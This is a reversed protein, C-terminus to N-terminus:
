GSLGECVHGQCAVHLGVVRGVFLRLCCLWQVRLVCWCSVVTTGGLQNAASSGDDVCCACWFMGPNIQQLLTNGLSVLFVTAAATSPMGTGTSTPDICQVHGTQCMLGGRGQGLEQQCTTHHAQARVLCLRIYQGWLAMCHQCERWLPLLFRPRVGSGASQSAKSGLNHACTHKSYVLACPDGFQSWQMCRWFM